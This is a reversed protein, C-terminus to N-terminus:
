KAHACVNLARIAAILSVAENGPLNRYKEYRSGITGITRWKRKICKNKRTETQKINYHIIIHNNHKQHLAKFPQNNM